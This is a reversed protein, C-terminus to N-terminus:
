HNFTSADALTTDDGNVVSVSSEINPEYWILGAALRGRILRGAFGAMRKEGTDANVARGRWEWTSQLKTPVLRGDFLRAHM